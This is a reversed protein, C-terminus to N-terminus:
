ALTLTKWVSGGTFPSGAVPDDGGAVTCVYVTTNGSTELMKMDGRAGPTAGDVPATAVLPISNRNENFLM